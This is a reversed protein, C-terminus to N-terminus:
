LKKRKCSVFSSNASFLAELDHSQLIDDDEDESLTGGATTVTQERTKNDFNEVSVDSARKVSLGQRRNDLTSLSFRSAQNVSATSSLSSSSKVSLGPTKIGSKSVLPAIDAMQDIPIVRSSQMM